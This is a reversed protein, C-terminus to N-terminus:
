PSKNVHNQENLGQSTVRCPGNRNSPSKIEGFFVSFIGKKDRLSTTVKTVILRFPFGSRFTVGVQQLVEVLPRLTKCRWLTQKSLDPFLFLRAGNFDMFCKSAMMRIIAVKICYKHLRCIADHDM